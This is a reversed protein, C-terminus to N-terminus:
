RGFMQTWNREHNGLGVRHHGSALMNKFHGPSHFWMKNAGAGTSTGAAINEGSATTGARRARDQPTAKGPVPSDHSFFKKETMDRSHGQAAECLKLDIALAGLGLLLRIRNLDRIGAAEEPALKDWVAFNGELVNRADASIPMAQMALVEELATLLTQAGPSEAGGCRDRLTWARLLEERQKGLTEGGDIVAQRDLGMLEEITKMAPDGKAVIDAKDLAPMALLDLVAQRAALIDRDIQAPAKGQKKLTALRDAMMQRARKAFAAKYERGLNRCWADVVALTKRAGDQGFDLVKEAAAYWADSGAKSRVFEGFAENLKKRQEASLDPAKSAPPPAAKSTTAPPRTAAALAGTPLMIPITVAILAAFLISRLGDM